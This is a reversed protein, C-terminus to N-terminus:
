EEELAQMAKSLSVRMREFSESLQGVEDKRELRMSSELDGLSVRDAARTIQDIPGLITVSLLGFVLLILVFLGAAFLILANRLSNQAIREFESFDKAIAIVGIRKGNFDKLPSLMVGFDKGSAQASIVQEKSADALAEANLLSALRAADTSFVHKFAGIDEGAEDRWKEWTINKQVRADLLLSVEVGYAAKLRELIPKFRLGFEFTGIQGEKDNVPVVGRIGLGGRGVEPGSFIRNKENAELVTFRFSSLDDDWKKPDHLRYYSTAPARHFQSQVAGFREQQVVYTDHLQDILAARVAKAEQSAKTEEGAKTPAPDNGKRLNVGQRFLRKILSINAVLEARAEADKTTLEVESHFQKALSELTTQKNVEILELKSQYNVYLLAATLLSM